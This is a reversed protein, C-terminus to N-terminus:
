EYTRPVPPPNADPEEERALNPTDADPEQDKHEELSTLPVNRFNTEIDMPEVPADQPPSSEAAGQENNVFQAM